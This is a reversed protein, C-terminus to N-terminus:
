HEEVTSKDFTGIMSAHRGKGPNYFVVNPATLPDIGFYDFM